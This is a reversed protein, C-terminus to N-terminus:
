IATPSFASQEGATDWFYSFLSQNHMVYYIIIMQNEYAKEKARDDKDKNMSRMNGRKM